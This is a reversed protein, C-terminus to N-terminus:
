ASGLQASLDLQIFCAPQSAWLAKGPDARQHSIPGPIIPPTQCYDLLHDATLTVLGIAAADGTYRYYGTLGYLLSASRQGIDANDWDSLNPSPPHRRRAQHEQSGNFIFHPAAMVATDKDAWPYRKLTEAAVRIRFDCQGNQGRYWPAIVGSPDEVALTPLYQPAPEEGQRSRPRCSGPQM